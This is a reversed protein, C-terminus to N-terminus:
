AYAVATIKFKTDKSICIKYTSTDPNFWQLGAASYDPDVDFALNELDGGELCDIREYLDKAKIKQGMIGLILPEHSSWLWVRVAYSTYQDLMDVGLAFKGCGAEGFYVYQTGSCDSAWIPASMCLDSRDLVYTGNIEECSHCVWEPPYIYDPQEADDGQGSRIGSVEVTISSPPITDKCLMKDGGHGWPCDGYYDYKPSKADDYCADDKTLAEYSDIALNDFIWSRRAEYVAFRDLWSDPSFSGVGLGIDPDSIEVYASAVDRCYTNFGGTTEGSMGLLATAVKRTENPKESDHIWLILFHSAIPYYPTPGAPYLWQSPHSVLKDGDYIGIAGEDERRDKFYVSGEEVKEYDGFEKSAFKFVAYKEGGDFYIRVEDNPHLNGAEVVILLDNTKKKGYKCISWSNAGFHLSQTPACDAWKIENEDHGAETPRRPPCPAFDVPHGLWENVNTRSLCNNEDLIWKGTKLPQGNKDKDFEWHWKTQQAHTGTPKCPTSLGLGEYPHIYVFGEPTKIGEPYNPEDGPQCDKTCSDSIQQWAGSTYRWVTQGCEVNDDAEVRMSGAQVEWLDRVDDECDFNDRFILCPCRYNLDSTIHPAPPCAGEHWVWQLESADDHRCKTTATENAAKGEHKPPFFDCQTQDNTPQAQWYGV